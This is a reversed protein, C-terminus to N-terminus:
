VSGNRLFRVLIIATSVTAAIPTAATAPPGWLNPWGRRWWLVASAIWGGGLAATITLSRRTPALAGIGGAAVEIPWAAPLTALFQGFGSAVGKGGRFRSWVPYCHGVVAATGGIHAGTDGAIARGVCAGAAGKAVDAVGVAYGWRRGLM